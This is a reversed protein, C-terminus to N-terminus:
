WVARDTYWCLSAGLTLVVQVAASKEKPDKARTTSVDQQSSRTPRVSVVDHSRLAFVTRSPARNSAAASHNM